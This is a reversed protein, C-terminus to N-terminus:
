IVNTDEEASAQAEAVETTAIRHVTAMDANVEKSMEDNHRVTVQKEQKTGCGPVCALVAFSFLATTLKKM